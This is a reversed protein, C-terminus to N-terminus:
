FPRCSEGVSRKWVDGHPGQLDMQWLGGGVGSGPRVRTGCRGEGRLRLSGLCPLARRMGRVGGACLPARVVVVLLLPGAVVCRGSGLGGTRM